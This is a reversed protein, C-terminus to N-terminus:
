VDKDSKVFLKLICPIIIAYKMYMSTCLACTFYKNAIYSHPAYM